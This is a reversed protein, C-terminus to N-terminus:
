PLMAVSTSLLRRRRSYRVGLVATGELLRMMDYIRIMKNWSSCVGLWFVVLCILYISSALMVHDM